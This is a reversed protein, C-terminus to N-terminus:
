AATLEAWVGLHQLGVMLADDFSKIRNHKDNDINKGNHEVIFGWDGYNECAMINVGRAELYDEILNARDEEVLALQVQAENYKNHASALCEELGLLHGKLEKTTM